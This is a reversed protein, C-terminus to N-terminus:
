LIKGIDTKFDPIQQMYDTLKKDRLKKDHAEVIKLIENLANVRSVDDASRKQGKKPYKESLSNDFGTTKSNIQIINYTLSNITKADVMKSNDDAYIAQLARCYKGAEEVASYYAYSSGDNLEFLREM